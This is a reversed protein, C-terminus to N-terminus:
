RTRENVRGATGASRAVPGDCGGSSDESGKISQSRTIRTQAPAHVLEVVAERQGGLEESKKSGDGGGGAAGSGAESALDQAMVGRAVGM